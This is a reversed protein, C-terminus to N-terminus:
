VKAGRFVFEWITDDEPSEFSIAPPLRYGAVPRSKAVFHLPGSTFVARGEGGEAVKGARAQVNEKIVTFDYGVRFVHDSWECVETRNSANNSHYLKPGDELYDAGSANAIRTQALQALLIVNRGQRILADLDTLLLRLAELQFRYGKGWGYSELSTPPKGSEPKVTAFVYPEILTEAKTITDIVLTGKEPVLNKQHIADRLDEFTEVGMIANVPKGTKPNAIKRGGDDLGIFVPDPAMAALTTKGVGSRGYLLIKQGETADSWPKVSFTKAVRAAAAPPRSMGVPPPKVPPKTM